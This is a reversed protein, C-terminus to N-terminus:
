DVLVSKEELCKRLALLREKHTASHGEENHFAYRGYEPCAKGHQEAVHLYLAEQTKQPLLFLWNLFAFYSEKSRFNNLRKIFKELFASSSPSFDYTAILGNQLLTLQGNSYDIPHHFPSFINELYNPQPAHQKNPISFRFIGKSTKLLLSDEVPLLMRIAYNYSHTPTGFSIISQDGTLEQLYLDGGQTGIFLRENQLALVSVSIKTTYCRFLGELTSSNWLFIDTAGMHAKKHALVCFKENAVCIVKKTDAPVEAISAIEIASFMCFVILRSNNILFLGRNNPLPTLLRHGERENMLHVIKGTTREEFYNAGGETQFYFKDGLNWFNTIVQSM